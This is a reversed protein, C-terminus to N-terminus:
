KQVLVFFVCFFVFFCMKWFVSKHMNQVKHFFCCFFNFFLVKKQFFTKDTYILSEKKLFFLLFWCFISRKTLLFITYFVFIHRYFQMKCIESLKLPLGKFVKNKEKNSWKQNKIFTSKTSTEDFPVSHM